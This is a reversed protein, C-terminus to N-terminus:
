FAAGDRDLPPILSGHNQASTSNLNGNTNNPIFNLTFVPFESDDNYKDLKELSQNYTDFDLINFDEHFIKKESLTKRTPIMILTLKEEYKKLEPDNNFHNLAGNYNDRWMTDNPYRAYYIRVGLDEKKIPKEANKSYHEIHYIFKKLTELKFWVSEADEDLNMNRRSGNITQYNNTMDHILSIPLESITDKPYTMCISENKCSTTCIVMFIVSILTIASFNRIQKKM